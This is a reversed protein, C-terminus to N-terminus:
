RPQLGTETELGLLRIQELLQEYEIPKVLYAECQNAFAGLINGKDHLASTMIVKAAAPPLIDEEEEIRRIEKLVDQGSVGPMMIDLCVLDFLPGHSVSAQFVAIAETGNSTLVCEGFPALMAQLMKRSAPDDEVILTKM